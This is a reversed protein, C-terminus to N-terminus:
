GVEVPLVISVRTGIPTGTENAMDTIGFSIKEKLKRNLIRLRERTIETAMSRHDMKMGKELAHSKIRGVGDDEVELHV